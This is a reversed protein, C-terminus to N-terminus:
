RRLAQELARTLGPRRGLLGRLRQWEASVDDLTDIDRLRELLRVRLGLAAARDLTEALVSPTSWTIGSFFEPRPRDLALLYYGGDDAPGLVADHEGNELALFAELATSRTVGPTDSGIVVVQRAGRGFAVEFAQAMREGLDAGSQPIWTEDPFWAEMVARDEPPTYFFLRQYEGPRPATRRAVAEALCRYLEAAVADGLRAALRTKVAGARPSKLFMLLSRDSAVADGM